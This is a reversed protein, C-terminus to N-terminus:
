LKTFVERFDFCGHRPALWEAARVAGEAFARRTFSEHRLTLRDSDSSAILLHLGNEDGERSATIPTDAATAHKM